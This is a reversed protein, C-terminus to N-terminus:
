WTSTKFKYGAVPLWCREQFVENMREIFCKVV